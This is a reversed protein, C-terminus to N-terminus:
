HCDKCDKFDLMWWGDDWELCVKRWGLPVQPYPYFPGIYPWAMPSYQKPYTVAAYNPHAAYSPWAYNPMQPGDYVVGGMKGSGMESVPTPMESYGGAYGSSDGGPYGASDDGPYQGGYEGAYEGPFEGSYTGPPMGDWGMGPPMGQQCGGGACEQQYNVLRAPRARTVPVPKNPRRVMRPPMGGRPMVPYPMVPLVQIVTPVAPNVQGAPTITPIGGGAAAVSADGTGHTIQATRSAAHISESGTSPSASYGLTAVGSAGASTATSDNTAALGSGVRGTPQPMRAMDGMLTSNIEGSSTALSETTAPSTPLELDNVVLRVGAIRRAMDLAQTAQQESSVRGTLWVVGDEVRVGIRFDKLEGESKATRFRHSLAEAIAHDDARLSDPVSWFLCAACFACAFRRM